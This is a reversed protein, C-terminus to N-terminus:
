LRKGLAFQFGDPFGVGLKYFLNGDLNEQRYSIIAIPLVRGNFLLKQGVKKVFYGEDNLYIAGFSYEVRRDGQGEIVNATLNYSVGKEYDGWFSYHYFGIGANLRLDWREESRNLKFTEYNLNLNNFILISSLNVTISGNDKKSELSQLGIGSNNDSAFGTFASLFFLAILTISLIQTKM